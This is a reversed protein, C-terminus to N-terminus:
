VWRVYLANSVCMFRSNAPCIRPRYHLAWTVCERVQRRILWPYLWVDNTAIRIPGYSETNYGYDYTTTSLWAYVTRGYRFVSIPMEQTMRTISDTTSGALHDTFTHGPCIACNASLFYLRASPMRFLVDRELNGMLYFPVKWIDSSRLRLSLM